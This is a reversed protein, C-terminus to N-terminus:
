LCQYLLDLLAHRGSIILFDGTDHVITSVKLKTATTKSAKIM